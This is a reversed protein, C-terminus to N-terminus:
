LSLIVSIEDREDISCSPCTRCHGPTLALIRRNARNRNSTMIELTKAPQQTLGVGGATESTEGVTALGVGVGVRVKVARGVTAAAVGRVSVAVIVGELV